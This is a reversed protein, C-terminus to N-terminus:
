ASSPRFHGPDIGYKRILEFFARRNKRAALAAKTINGKHIGLLNKIYSREFRAVVRAKAERFSESKAPACGKRPLQIDAARVVTGCGLAVAREIVHELERVNGPWDHTMLVRLADDALHMELRGSERACKDLFHKALLPIDESRDALPPLELPIVNLRYYLDERIRGSELTEEPDANTAALVRVDSHWLRPSGLRRYEKEQLFRLLVVQTSAPLGDIEDLFLTGGDAQQVLGESAASAGTYAAREHGFLENEILERPIAGCNVPVFPHNRRPSLYHIARACLEKGTGTGGSILVTANCAAIREIRRIVAVFARSEGVLQKLGLKANLSQVLRQTDNPRLYRTVRTVVDAPHFPALLFDVAGRELLDMIKGPSDTALAVLVATSPTVSRLSHLLARTGDGGSNDLAVVIGHPQFEELKAQLRRRSAEESGSPRFHGIELTSESELVTLLQRGVGCGRAWDAVFVRSQM